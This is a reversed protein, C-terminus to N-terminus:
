VRDSSPALDGLARELARIMGEGAERGAVDDSLRRALSRHLDRLDAIHDTLLDQRAGFLLHAGDPRLRAGVVRTFGSSALRVLGM